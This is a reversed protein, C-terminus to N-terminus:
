RSRSTGAQVNQTFAWAMSVVWGLFTWGLFINVISIAIGNNHKRVAAVFTPLLYLFLFLIAFLFKIIVIM